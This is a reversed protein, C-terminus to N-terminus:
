HAPENSRIGVHHLQRCRNQLGKLQISEQKPLMTEKLSQNRGSAAYLDPHLQATLRQLDHCIFDQQPLHKDIHYLIRYLAGHNGTGSGIDHDGGDSGRLRHENYGVPSRPDRGFHRAFKEGRKEGGFGTALPDTEHADALDERAVFGAEGEGSGGGVVECAKCYNELFLANSALALSTLCDYKTQDM